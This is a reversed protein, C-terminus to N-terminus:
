TGTNGVAATLIDLDVEATMQKYIPKTRILELDTSFRM